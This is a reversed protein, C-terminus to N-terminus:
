LETGTLVELEAKGKALNTLSREYQLQFELLQRQADLVSLFDAEGAQYATYFANLSQEAKPVLGDRYLQVKRLADDYEFLKLEVLSTLQNETEAYRETAARYRARAENKKAKNKGFWIPLNMSVSLGWPDKGSEPM